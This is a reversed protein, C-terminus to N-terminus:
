DESETQKEALELEAQIITLPTRFEHSANAVFQKQSKFTDDIRAIMKNLTEALNRIEDKAEPLQLRLDLSQASINEATETM